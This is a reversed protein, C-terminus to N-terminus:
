RYCVFGKSWDVQWSIISSLHLCMIDLANNLVHCISCILPIVTSFFYSSLCSLGPVDSDFQYCTLQVWVKKVLAYDSFHSGAIGGHRNSPLPTGTCRRKYWCLRGERLLSSLHVFIVRSRLTWFWSITRTRDLNDPITRPDQKTTGWCPLVTLFIILSYMINRNRDHGSTRGMDKVTYKINLKM